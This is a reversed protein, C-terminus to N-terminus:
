AGARGYFAQYEKVFEKWVKWEEQHRLFVEHSTWEDPDNGEYEFMCHSEDEYILGEDQDYKTAFVTTEDEDITFDFWATYPSCAYAAHVKGKFSFMFWKEFELVKEPLKNYREWKKHHPQNYKGSM